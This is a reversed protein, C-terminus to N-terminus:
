RVDIFIPNTYLWTDEWPDGDGPPHPLPGHPDVRRGHLGPGNRRGDSGRLRLYGSERAPGLPIRLTYIGTRRHTDATHEVRTMPAQFSDPDAARRGTVGRIM